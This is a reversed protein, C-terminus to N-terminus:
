FEIQCNNPSEVDVLVRACLGQYLNIKTTDIKLPTGVTATINLLNQNKKVELPIRVVKDVSADDEELM